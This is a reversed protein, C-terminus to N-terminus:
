VTITMGPRALEVPGSFHEAAEHLPQDTDTWAVIHTLVLLGAGAEQAARAADAGTMHLDAVNGHGVFSAEFLAIDTGRALEALAPNPGTDGSYTISSDGASIRVSYAEVPHLARITELEFPGITLPGPGLTRVEFEAEIPGTDQMGYISAMREATERPGILPLRRGTSSPGYHRMVYLSAVDACHDVHCHSLVVGAFGEDAVPDLYNQLAGLAGNGLDVVISQGDHEILYCSAPSDPTPYSGACGVVTLKV